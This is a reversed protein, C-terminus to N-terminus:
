QHRNVAMAMTIRNRFGVRISNDVDLGIADLLAVIQNKRNILTAKTM